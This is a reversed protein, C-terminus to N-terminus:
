WNDDKEYGLKVLLDQYREKFISKLEPFFHEEWQGSVGKSGHKEAGVKGRKKKADFTYKQVCELGTEIQKDIFDYHKFIKNFMQLENVFIEEYRIEKINPHHYNWKLMHSFSFKRWNLEIMLGMEKDVNNILEQYTYGTTDKEIKFADIKLYKRMKDPIPEVIWSDTSWKHYNYGSVLLDRPDRIIHTGTFHKPLASIDSFITNIQLMQNKSTDNAHQFLQDGEFAQFNKFDWEMKTSICKFVQEFFYTMCKHYGFHIILVPEPKRKFFSRLTKIMEAKISKHTTRIQEGPTMMSM